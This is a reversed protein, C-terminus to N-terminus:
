ADAALMLTQRGSRLDLDGVGVAFGEPAIFEGTMGEPLSIVARMWSERMEWAVEIDGLVTPFVGQAWALDCPQPAIRVLGFGAAMPAVGLVETSLQYLPSTSFGHCLSATPDFSEWLTTAGRDIMPGFRDRILELALDFRGAKALARYVFHSYFTNALVVNTEPDFPLSVPAIPPAATFVLKAPDTIAAVISEWREAPAVDWLIVSANGHQSVRADRAGTQPDVSDVYVGRTADWHRANLAAVIGDAHARYRLAAREYGIASALRAAARFTGCLQANLACAEGARGFAAWDMFHWYPLEAVLGHSDLQREFWALARQIAPFIEEVTEGDGTHQWHEAANLIWHLAFGPITLIDRGHDGPAFMQPLGDERQSEAAQRLFHRNLANVSPGFAAQGVLYEVHADGLWQRQERGPCDEWGDHMCQQLTHRAVEWMETLQGDSCSFSGREEAPYRTYTAGVERISVGEPANRVVMQMYRLGTWEAREFRQTGPRCTYRSVQSGHAMNRDIHPLQPDSDFEGPTGEAVALEIVEGGRAEVSFFPHAAYIRGFDLMVAVDLNPLTRITTAEDADTLMAEAREVLGEPLAVLEESFVRRQIPLDPEPVSGMWWAAEVPRVTSELLQPIERPLLTPWPETKMGGFPSDPPGGGSTLIRAVDWEGDDFGTLAWGSPFLRADFEEIFGPAPGMLPTERNWARAETCRWEEDSLLVDRRAGSRIECDVYVGGDGFVLTWEGRARQYWATDDGYTHVILAIVNEGVRLLPAIEHRDVRQFLPDCRAPGRGAFDGNVFLRYRGDVTVQLNATDAQRTLQFARRFLWWRNRSEGEPRKPAARRRFLSAVVAGHFIEQRPTWIVPARRYM